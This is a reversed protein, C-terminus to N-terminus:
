PAAQADMLLVTVGNFDQRALVRDQNTTIWQALGTDGLDSLNARKPDGLRHVMTEQNPFVTWLRMVEAAAVTDPDYYRERLRADDEWYRLLPLLSLAPEIMFADGPQWEAEIYAAADNWAQIENEERHLLLASHTIGTLIVIGALLAGGRQVGLQMWGHLMLLLVGPLIVIFYRGVFLPHSLSILFVPVVALVILWVWYLGTLQQRRQRWAFVSGSLLGLVLAVLAPIFYLRYNDDFGTGINALTLPIDLISPKQIWGIGFSIVELQTLRYVWWALPLLAIVQVLLWRRLLRHHSGLAFAFVAYQALPLAAAFYHTMYAATSSVGFGIWNATTRSGRLLMLFFYSTLLAALFFLAYPRAMRSYWIHFPNAALLAGAWLALRHDDYLRRTVTILLAISIVGIWVSPMRLMFDNDSPWGRMLSFYLPVHVGDTLLLDVFDGAPAEAFFVTFTEDSWLSDDGLSIVRLAFGTLVILAAILPYM